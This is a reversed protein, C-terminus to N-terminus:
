DRESGAHKGPGKTGAQGASEGYRSGSRRAAAVELSSERAIVKRFDLGENQNVHRTAKRTIHGKKM